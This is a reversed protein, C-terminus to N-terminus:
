VYLSELVRWYFPVRDDTRHIRYYHYNRARREFRSLFERELHLLRRQTLPNNSLLLRKGLEVDDVEIEAYPLDLSELPTHFHLM